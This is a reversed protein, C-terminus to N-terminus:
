PKRYNFSSNKYPFYLDFNNILVVPALKYFTKEKVIFTIFKHWEKNFVDYFINVSLSKIVNKAGYFTLTMSLWNEQLTLHVVSIIIGQNGKAEYFNPRGDLDFPVFTM